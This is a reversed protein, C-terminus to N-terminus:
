VRGAFIILWLCDKFSTIGTDKSNISSIGFLWRSHIFGQLYHSLSGVEVPSRRIESGDVTDLIFKMTTYINELPMDVVWGESKSLDVRRIEDFVWQIFYERPMLRGIRLQHNFTDKMVTRIQTGHFWGNEGNPSAIPDRPIQFCCTM